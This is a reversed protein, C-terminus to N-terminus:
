RFADPHEVKAKRLIGESSSDLVANLEKKTEKAEKKAETAEQAGVWYALAASFLPLIVLLIDKVRSWEDLVVAGNKVVPATGIRGAVLYLWWVLIVATFVTVMFAGVARFRQLGESPEAM